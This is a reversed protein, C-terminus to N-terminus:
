FMSDIGYPASKRLFAAFLKATRFFFRDKCDCFDDGEPMNKSLFLM